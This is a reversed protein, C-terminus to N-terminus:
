GYLSRYRRNEEDRARRMTIIRIRDSGRNTWVVAVFKGDIEGVRIKRQEGERDSPIDYCPRGDFLLRADRFDLGRENLVRSRKQEDWEFDM